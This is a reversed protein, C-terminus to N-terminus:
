MKWNNFWLYWKWQLSFKWWPLFYRYLQYMKYGFNLFYVFFIKIRVKVLKEKMDLIVFALVWHVMVFEMIPACVTKLAVSNPALKEKTDLIVFALEWHMTVYEMIPACVTKLAVSNPALKEKMDLIVFALEWHIIVFEMIPACVTKLAVSNPALKEKM